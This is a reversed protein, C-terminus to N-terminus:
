LKIKRKSQLHLEVYRVTGLPAPTHSVLFPRGERAGGPHGDRAEPRHLGSLQEYVHTHIM